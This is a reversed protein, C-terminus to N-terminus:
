LVEAGRGPLMMERVLPIPPAGFSLFREHFRRLRFEGGELEEVDRRLKKLMMKGLTYNLYGPDFTGREAEKRAPHEELFADKQFMQQAEEVTLDGAHMGLAVLYRVNRILAEMSQALRYRPEGAGFGEDLMLEESYHAWAEWFSYADFTRTMQSPADLYHLWHLFHGPWAEHMSVVALTYPEFKGLWEEQQVASWEAAPLTVYYFAERAASEYPGPADLMAFAWRAYPPTPEVKCPCDRPIGVLDREIVFRRLEDLLERTMAVLREAPPHRRALSRLTEIAPQRPAIARAASEFAQRNRELDERGREELVELEVEVGEEIRLLDRFTERGISYEESALPLREDRLFVIFARLEATAESLAEALRSRTAASAEELEPALNKELFELFGRYVEIATTLRPRPLVRDLNSRAQKLLRPIAEVHSAAAVARQEVPAYRRKVYLSADCARSYFLPDTKWFRLREFRFATMELAREFLKRDLWAISAPAPDPLAALKRSFTAALRLRDEIGAASYDPLRGDYQHLGLHAASSPELEFCATLFEEILADQEM